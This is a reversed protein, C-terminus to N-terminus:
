LIRRPGYEMFFGVMLLGIHGHCSLFVLEGRTSSSTGNGFVYIIRSRVFMQDRTGEPGSVLFVTSALALM